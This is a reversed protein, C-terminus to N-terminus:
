LIILNMWKKNTFDIRDCTCLVSLINNLGFHTVCNKKVDDVILTHMAVKNSFLGTTVLLFITSVLNWRRGYHSNICSNIVIQCAITNIESILFHFHIQLTWWDFTENRQFMEYCELEIKEVSDLLWINRALYIESFTFMSRADFRNFKRKVFNVNTATSNGLKNIVIPM